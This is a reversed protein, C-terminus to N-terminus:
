HFTLCLNVAWVNHSWGTVAAPGEDSLDRSQGRAFSIEPTLSKRSGIRVDYGLGGTVGFAVGNAGSELECVDSGAECFTRPPLGAYSLGLGGKLFFGGASSPYFLAVVTSTGLTRGPDYAESLWDTSNNQLWGSAEWGLLWHSGLTGGLRLTGNFSGVRGESVCQDCEAQASGYGAGFAVWFGKREPADAARVSTATLVLLVAVVRAAVASSM